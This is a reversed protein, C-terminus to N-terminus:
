LPDKRGLLRATVVSAEKELLAVREERTARLDCANIGLDKALEDQLAKVAGVYHQFEAHKKEAPPTVGCARCWWRRILSM